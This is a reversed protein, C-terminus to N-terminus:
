FFDIDNSLNHTENVLCLLNDLRVLTGSLTKQRNFRIYTDNRKTMLCTIPTIQCIILTMSPASCITLHCRTERCRRKDISGLLLTMGCKENKVFLQQWKVVLLQWKVSRTAKNFVLGRTSIVALRTLHCFTMNKFDYFFNALHVFWM